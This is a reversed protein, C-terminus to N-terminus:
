PCIDELYLNCWGNADAMVLVIVSTVLVAVQNSFQVKLDPFVDCRMLQFLNLVHCLAGDIRDCSCSIFHFHTM